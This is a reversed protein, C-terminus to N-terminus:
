RLSGAFRRDNGFKSSRFVERVEATGLEVEEFEPKLMGKLANEIDDIAQYIVSYYRIDVGERESLERARGEPRM